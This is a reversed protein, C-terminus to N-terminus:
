NQLKVKYVTSWRSRNSSSPLFFIDEKSSLSYENQKLYVMTIYHSLEKLVVVLHNIFYIFNHGNSLVHYWFNCHRYLCLLLFFFFWHLNHLYLILHIISISLQILQFPFLLSHLFLKISYSFTCRFNHFKLIIKYINLSLFFFKLIDNIWIFLIQMLRFLHQSYWGFCHHL